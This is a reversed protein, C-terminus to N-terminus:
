ASIQYGFEDPLCGAATKCRPISISLFSMRAWFSALAKALDPITVNTGLTGENPWLRSKGSPFFSKIAENSNKFDWGFTFNWFM